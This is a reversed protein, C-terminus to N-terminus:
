FKVTASLSVRRADGIAVNLNNVASPYYVTDFLNKVNLQYIVPTNQYKTEYTAFIDAVVYSPLFFSNIADGPRDGVYRAGGGLRLQGPLATGFDYVLYLSATNLAVNQLKKGLLTVDESATVRADTYGYSGILAWSDTLRGTVDLEVGRSRARGVTHLEVVGASNTKTTQVNKKDLDYLALTGSIRKNLDFKVGTEYSVGEEPAVNSDIVIGIPAITSNPKLSETFSAYLSVEETLKLIAGGLPLVKDQSVNTNTVFPKGRGAIQDYDMYRVGGVLAFRETLHLTDQFFLSWQGLKDTQASDSNSVTTGPGVLGYVPNYVNIAPTAQRILNDRYITRYQGDGGFVVENRMNGLWFSGSIYSTGYSANSLSGQTGDNSRTEVGTTFNLTSIRLQNASFTETNYSYGAYLKWDQNFRHEISAQMLDSTGWTNNFPEDLRRTSPVALPAKTVPNFATGRDFPYIFERHEYNLQVTTDQGYWALSPAVLMERHRGFNRWYDESVGYGIFRYALGQDGIPGTVDLLGDAGTKSAGFASGLLTVSGHQYLEPRKSITNVIGGPDMIGYLLSAPGKLVEVSEVAPNFSRGQVLPMGNRMISGDRNDGFGRRIVADQSGALTNTQTIGSVNILADDINRPLQDKLVQEPVVNVAQSTDLPSAGSRLTTSSPMARYGLKAAQQAAAAAAARESITPAAPTAANRSRQRAAAQTRRQPSESARAPKPRQVPAEVTVPPLASQAQATTTNSPSEVLLVAAGLLLGARSKGARHRHGSVRQGDVFARVKM